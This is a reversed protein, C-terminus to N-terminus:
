AAADTGLLRAVDRWDAAVHAAGAATLAAANRHDLHSGGIFGIATMGAAVAGTVGPVSDEVVVCRAPDAGMREAAYLFLDPAPKGRRVMQSSFVAEGFLDALGTADLSFRIRELHSSSAVCRPAAVAALTARAGDVAALERGFLDRTEPWLRDPVSADISQGTRAALHALIDAQKMGICEAFMAETAATGTANLLALMARAALPESDVLVGDCDCILLDYSLM